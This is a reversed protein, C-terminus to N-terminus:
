RSRWTHGGTKRRRTRDTPCTWSCRCGTSGRCITGSRCDSRERYSCSSGTRCLPQGAPHEASVRRAGHPRTSQFIQSRPTLWSIMTVGGRPAHISILTGADVPANAALRAGCPARPDFDPPLQAVTGPLRSGAQHARGDGSFWLRGPSCICDPADPILPLCTQRFASFPLARGCIRDLVGLIGEPRPDTRLANKM